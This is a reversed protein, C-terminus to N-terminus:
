DNKLEGVADELRDLVETINKEDINDFVDMKTKLVAKRRVIPQPIYAEATLNFQYKVVRHAKDGPEVNINNAISNLKVGIEWNIDRVKIYAMPSFKTIVQELIQNMDELHMTWISLTYGIDIPVGRAVGFVTDREYTEKTAYGPAFDPRLRRGYDLAQHFVYRSQNFEMSSSYISMIPLRIRDVVASNDKRMNDQMIYAVAREQTAYIIPVPFYEGDDAIVVINEFLQKMAEDCGRLAQSYRYIVNRNPTTLDNVIQGTQMPDCLGSQGVGTMKHQDKLNLIDSIRLVSKQSLEPDCNTPVPDIDVPYQLPSKENCPNLTQNPNNGPNVPTRM